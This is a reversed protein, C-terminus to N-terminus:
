QQAIAMEMLDERESVGVCLPSSTKTKVLVQTGGTEAVAGPSEGNDNVVENHLVKSHTITQKARRKSIMVVNQIPRAQDRHSPTQRKRLGRWIIFSRQIIITTSSLGM